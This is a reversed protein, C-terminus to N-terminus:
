FKATVSFDLRSPLGVQQNAPFYEKNTMNDWNLSASWAVSQWTWDYGVASNWLIYSPLFLYPNRNDAAAKGVYNFGGGIWLGKLDGQLFSYRTWLNALTKATGQPHAGLYVTNGVPEKTNRIDDEAVSGFIQWSDFPSYTIEYEVGRSRASAGQTDTSYTGSPFGPPNVQNVTQVMDKQLIDYVALTSSIRGGFLDTKIGVEKGEGKTPKASGVVTNMNRLTTQSPLVFSESYSSYLMVQRLIKYGLGVQPTTDSARLGKSITGAKFDTSQAQSRNYRVGGVAYLRDDLFSGNALAYAAQDSTFTLTDTFQGSTSGNPLSYKNYSTTQDVFYTPSAPNLDWAQFYPTSAKVDTANIRNYQHAKQYFIGVLPNIKGWSFQYKGTLDGEWTAVNGWTNQWRQRRPLVAPQNGMLNVNDPNALIQQAFALEQATTVAGATWLGTAPNFTLTGPPAVAITGIGTAVYSSRNQGYDFDARGVWHDGFKADLETNFTALNTVRQDNKSSYNFKRALSPYTLLFGPDFSDNFGFDPNGPTTKNVNTLAASPAAYGSSASLASVISAPTSVELNPKFVAPPTENRRFYQLNSTISVNPSVNWTATPFFVTTHSQSPQYYKYGNEWTAVVRVLLTDKIVPQNVDVMGRFYSYSGIHLNVDTFAKDTARKTIYNVTGGPAIQGYILSEPGKVVEVRDITSTDVYINGASGENFGDHQPPQPFGRVTYVATGANFERGATTVGASYRAVDFLDRSGVDSIFQGTFASLAFPLDGIPMDVHTASVSNSARYGVDNTTTVHFESLKVVAEDNPTSETTQALVSVTLSFCAGAGLLRRFAVFTWSSHRMIAHKTYM